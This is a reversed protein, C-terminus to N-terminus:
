PREAVHVIMALLADRNPPWVQQPRQKHPLELTITPIKREIGAYTGFSGPTPYGVSAKPPYGNHPQMLRALGEAPGDYNNCPEFKDTSHISVIADPELMEVAKIVARTEPESAPAKGPSYRAKKAKPKWNGTPFNRNCDVGNANTRTGRLLGDPNAAPLVAITRGACSEGHALLYEVLHLAVFESSPEDGHIGAFVFTVPGGDGFVHMRIARGEVSRGLEITRVPPGVSLDGVRGASPGAANPCICGALFVLLGFISNKLRTM